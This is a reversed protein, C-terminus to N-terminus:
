KIVPSSLRWAIAADVVNTQLAGETSALRGASLILSFRKSADLTKEIGVMAQMLLGGGVDIGGGGAAGLLLETNAYLTRGLAHRWGAGFQGVAYGGAGGDCASLAQGTIYLDRSLMLDIKSGLLDVGREDANGQDKRRSGDYAQYAGRLRWRQIGIGPRNRDHTNINNSFMPVGYRYALQLGFVDASFDGQPATVRGLLLTTQLTDNIAYDLATTVRGLLGGGTAVAGGGGAGLALEARWVLRQSLAYRGGYAWLVEAYGDANGDWAGATQLSLYHHPRQQRQFEIAVGLLRMTKAPNDGTDRSNDLPYYNWENMSLRRTASAYHRSPSTATAPQQTEDPWGAQMHFQLPRTLSLSWQDSDINGNPFRVRSWQLGWRWENLEVDIGAHPRLMLGGGQPAAGGGGGGVFLGADASLRAVIPLRLGGSFGGTFFGGRRGSMAGYATLGGYTQLSQNVTHQLLFSMGALGMREDAPLTLTEYGLSLSGNHAPFLEQATVPAQIVCFVLTTLLFYSKWNQQM